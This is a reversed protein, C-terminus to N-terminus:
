TNPDLLCTISGPWLQGPQYHRLLTAYHEDTTWRGFYGDGERRLQFAIKKGSTRECLIDLNIPQGEDDDALEWDTLIWNNRYLWGQFRPFWNGDFGVDVAEPSIGMASVLCCTLCEAFTPRELTWLSM